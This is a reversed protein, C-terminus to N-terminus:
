STRVRVSILWIFPWNYYNEEVSESYSVMFDSGLATYPWRLKLLRAVRDRDDSGEVDYFAEMDKLVSDVVVGRTWILLRQVPYRQLCRSDEPACALTDLASSFDNWDLEYCGFLGTIERANCIEQVVWRRPFWSRTLFQKTDDFSVNLTTSTSNLLNNIKLDNFYQLITSLSPLEWLGETKRWPHLTRRPSAWQLLQYAKFDSERSSGEGLWVVVRQAHAYIQGMLSVRSQRRLAIQKISVYLTLGSFGRDIPFACCEFHKLCIKDYASGEGM